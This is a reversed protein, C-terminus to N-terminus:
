SSGTPRRAPAVVGLASIVIMVVATLAIVYRM